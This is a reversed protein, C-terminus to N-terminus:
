KEKLFSKNEIRIKDAIMAIFESNTPKSNGSKIMYGFLENITDLKGRNWAVEIAHRIAREVRSPTTDHMNAITPYLQKTISNLIDMDCVALLISDRLYQYGKIHAPVGIEHIIDTIILELQHIHNEQYKHINGPIHYKGSEHSVIGSYMHRITQLLVLEDVPKFFVRGAGLQCAEVQIDERKMATLLIVLLGKKIMGRRNLENLLHMGDMEPMILDTLILDVPAYSIMNLVQLGNEARGVMEMDPQSNIMNELKQRYLINDDAIIARINSM